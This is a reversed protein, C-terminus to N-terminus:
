NQLDANSDRKQARRGRLRLAINFPAWYLLLNTTLIEFFVFAENLSLVRNSKMTFALEIM